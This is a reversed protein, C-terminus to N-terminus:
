LAISTMETRAFSIVISECPGRDLKMQRREGHWFQRGAIPGISFDEVQLAIQSEDNLDRRHYLSGYAPFPFSFIRHEMEAIQTMVHKVEETTLSLWRSWLSEGDVREMIIYEAGVSNEPSSSYDLIKPVPLGLVTRLFDITAVESATTYHPPGAIPTPIRAIVEHGVDTTLLFVKNFGGEAIKKVHSCWDRGIAKGAVHQLAIPDFEVYREKLRENENFSNM